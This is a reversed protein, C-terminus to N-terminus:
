YQEGKGLGIVTSVFGSFLGIGFFLIAVRWAAWGGPIAWAILLTVFFLALSLVATAIGTWRLYKLTDGDM